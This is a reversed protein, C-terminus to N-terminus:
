LTAAQIQGPGSSTFIETGETTFINEELTDFYTVFDGMLIRQMTPARGFKMFIAGMM